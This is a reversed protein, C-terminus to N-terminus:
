FPPNDEVVEIYSEIEKKIVELEDATLINDLNEYIEKKFLFNHANQLFGIGDLEVVEGAREMRKLTKYIRPSLLNHNMTEENVTLFDGKKLAKIIIDLIYNKSKLQAKLTTTIGGVINMRKKDLAEEQTTKLAIYKHEDDWIATYFRTGETLSEKIEAEEYIRPPLESLLKKYIGFFSIARINKMQQDYEFFWEDSRVLAKKTGEDEKATYKLVYNIVQDGETQLTGINAYKRNERKSDPAQVRLIKVFAKGKPYDEINFDLLNMEYIKKNEKKLQKILGEIDKRNDTKEEKLSKAYEKKENENHKKFELELCDTWAAAWQEEKLYLPSKRIFYAAKVQLLFHIHPHCLEDGAEGRTVEFCRFGGVAIEAFEKRRMMRTFAKSMIKLINKLHKIHPNKITLTGFILGDKKNTQNILEPIIDRVKQQLVFARLRQCEVCNRDRCRHTHLNFAYGDSGIAMERHSCCGYVRGARKKMAASQEVDTQAESRLYYLKALRAGKSKRENLREGNKDAYEPLFPVRPPNVNAAYAKHNNDCSM